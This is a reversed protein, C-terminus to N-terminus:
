ETLTRTLAALLATSVALTFCESLGKQSIATSSATRSLSFFTTPSIVATVTPGFAQASVRRVASAM